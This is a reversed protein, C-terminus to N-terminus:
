PAPSASLNRVLLVGSASMRPVSSPPAAPAADIEGHHRDSEALNEVVDGELPARQGAAIVPQAAERTLRQMQTESGDIDQAVADGEVIEDQQAEGDGGGGHGEQQARGEAAGEEGDALVLSPRAEKADRDLQMDPQSEDDGAEEDRQGAAEIGQEVIEGIWALQMVALGAVEDDHRDHTAHAAEPTRQEAGRDEDHQLVIDRA